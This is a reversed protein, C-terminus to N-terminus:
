VLIQLIASYELLNCFIFYVSTIKYKLIYQVLLVNQLLKWVKIICVEYGNMHHRRAERVISALIVLCVYNTSTSSAIFLGFVKM